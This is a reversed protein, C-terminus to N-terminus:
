RDANAEQLARRIEEADGPRTWRTISDTIADVTVRRGAARLELVTKYVFGRYAAPIAVGSVAGTSEWEAELRALQPDNWWTAPSEGARRKRRTDTAALPVVNVPASGPGRWSPAELYDPEYELRKARLEGADRPRDIRLVLRLTRNLEDPINGANRFALAEAATLPQADSQQVDTEEGREAALEIELDRTSMLYWGEAMRPGANM